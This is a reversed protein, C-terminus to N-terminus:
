RGVELINVKWDSVNQYLSVPTQGVGTLERRYAFANVTQWLPIVPLDGAAIRHVQRLRTRAEKWNRSKDVNQLALSMPASCSGARGQPGLLRRADVLPEWIALDTYFLDYDEPLEDQHPSLQRLKIPIGIADLQLKITQCATRALADPPYVLLLPSAPIPKAAPAKPTKQGAKLVKTQALSSRAVNALVAALRPEYPRPLITQDYAYGIPDSLQAGSPLPGSLVIFGPRSRGGLLIDHLIQQRDIGYCLARRFERRALLPKAHNVLLAHVTPIRYSDVTIEKTAQLQEIQWPPIRDLADVDGRVLAAYAEQDDAFVREIIARPGRTNKAQQSIKYHVIGPQEPDISAQFARAATELPATAALNLQLLAEPRVHSVRWRIRVEQGRSISVNGLTGAIGAHYSASSPDALRLLQLAIKEPTIGEALAKENLRVEMELGSDDSTLGAWPSEYIGGEAGFDTLEVLRPTLLRGVREAPWDSVSSRHAVLGHQSVGVLIQPARRHVERLLENAGPVQPLIGQARRVAQRAASFKGQDIAQRALALQGTADSEFKEQWGAASAIELKPFGQHFLDLVSRASSFDQASLHENILRDGVAQVVRTLGSREPNLDYVALLITMAEDYRKAAYSAAADGLLYQEKAQQLGALGPYYADLFDLTAYAESFDDAATLQKAEKLVLQEFLEIKTISNWSVTYPISPESLREVELQGHDPYVEPVRREPLDLLSVDIVTGGDLTIRDFPTQDLLRSPEEKAVLKSTDSLLVLALAVTPWAHRHTLLGFLKNFLFLM